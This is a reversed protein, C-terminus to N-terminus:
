IIFQIVIVSAVLVPITMILVIRVSKTVRKWLAITGLINAILIPVFVLCVPFKVVEFAWLLMLGFSIPMCVFSLYMLVKQYRELQAKNNEM